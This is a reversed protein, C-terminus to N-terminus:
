SLTARLTSLNISRLLQPFSAVCHANQRINGRGVSGLRITDSLSGRPPHELPSPCYQQRTTKRATPPSIGGPTEAEQSIRFVRGVLVKGRVLEAVFALELTSKDGKPGHDLMFGRSFSFNACDLFNVGPHDRANEDAIAEM